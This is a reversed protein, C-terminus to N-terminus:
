ERIPEKENIIPKTDKNNLEKEEWKNDKKEKLKGKKVESRENLWENV